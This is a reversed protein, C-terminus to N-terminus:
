MHHMMTSEGGPAGVIDRHRRAIAVRDKLSPIFEQWRRRFISILERNVNRSALTPARVIQSYSHIRVGLDDLITTRSDRTGFYFVRKGFAIAPLAGHLRGTVVLGARKFYSLYEELDGRFTVLPLDWGVARCKEYVGDEHVIGIVDAERALVRAAKWQKRLHSRGLSFLIYGDDGVGDAPLHLTPCGVYTAEIGAHRLTTYTFSDRAGVPWELQKVISLDASWTGGGVIRQRLLVGPNPLPRWLSGSLCYAPYPLEGLRSLGPNQGATIMTCGPILLFDYERDRPPAEKFSDFEAAPPPLVGSILHRTAFDIIRNGYNISSDTFNAYLYQM